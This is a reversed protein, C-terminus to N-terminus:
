AVPQGPAGVGAVPNGNGAQAGNVAEMQQRKAQEIEAPRLMRAETTLVIGPRIELHDHPSPPANKPRKPQFRDKAMRVDMLERSICKFKMSLPQGGPSSIMGEERIVTELLLVNDVLFPQEYVASASKDVPRRSQQLLIGRGQVPLARVVLQQDDIPARHLLRWGHHECFIEDEPVFEPEMM